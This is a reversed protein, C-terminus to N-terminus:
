FPRKILTRSRLMKETKNRHNRNRYRICPEMARLSGAYKTGRPVTKVELSDLFIASSKTLAISCPTLSNGMPSAYSVIPESLEFQMVSMGAHVYRHKGATAGLYVLVHTGGQVPTGGWVRRVGSLQLARHSFHKATPKSPLRGDAKYLTFQKTSADHYVAFNLGGNDMILWKRTHKPLSDLKTAPLECISDALWKPVTKKMYTKPVNKLEGTSDNILLRPGVREGQIVNWTLGFLGNTKKSEYREAVCGTKVRM